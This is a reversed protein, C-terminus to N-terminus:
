SVNVYLTDPEFVPKESRRQKLLAPLVPEVSLTEILTGHIRITKEFLTGHIRILKEFLTGHIRITKEILIGHIRVVKEIPNRPYPDQETLTAAPRIRKVSNSRKSFCKRFPRSRNRFDTQNLAQRDITKNCLSLGNLTRVKTTFPTSKGTFHIKYVIILQLPELAQSKHRHFVFGNFFHSPPEM